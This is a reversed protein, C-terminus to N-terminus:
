DGPTRNYLNKFIDGPGNALNQSWIVSIDECLSLCEGEDEKAVARQMDGAKEILLALSGAYYHLLEISKPTLTYERKHIYPPPLTDTYGEPPNDAKIGESDKRLRDAVRDKLKEVQSHIKEMSALASKLANHYEVIQNRQAEITRRLHSVPPYTM